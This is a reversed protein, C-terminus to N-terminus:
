IIIKEMSLYSKSVNKIISIRMKKKRKMLIKIDKELM